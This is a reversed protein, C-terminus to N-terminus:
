PANIAIGSILPPPNVQYAFTPLSHAFVQCDDRFYSSSHTYVTGAVALEKAPLFSASYTQETFVLTDMGSNSDESEQQESLATDLDQASDYLTSGVPVANNAETGPTPPSDASPTLRGNSLFTTGILLLSIWFLRVIHKNFSQM